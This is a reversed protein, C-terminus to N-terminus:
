QNHPVVVTATSTTSNGAEDSASYTLVYTRGDSNGQREARLWITGNDDIEIDDFTQGDEVEGDFNPDFTNSSEGENM